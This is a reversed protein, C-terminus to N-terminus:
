RLCFRLQEVAIKDDDWKYVKTTKGLRGVMGKLMDKETAMGDTDDIGDINDAFRMNVTM